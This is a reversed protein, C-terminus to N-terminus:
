LGEGRIAGPSESAAGPRAHEPDFNAGVTFLRELTVSRLVQAAELRHDGAIFELGASAYRAAKELARPTSTADSLEMGDAVAIKNSLAVLSYFCSQREEPDLQAIATFISESADSAKPLAPVWVPLHWKGVALPRAGIPIEGREEPRLYRYIGMAEDWPPFGLDQLRGTRWRLAWEENDAALEWAVGQMMRFYAWYENEFLSRLLVVTSALDDKSDLATFYFQGDLTQGGEPPEWDQDDSPPRQAVSLRSRLFMVVIEADLSRLARLLGESGIEAFADIWEELSALDPLTGNWADLDICAVYQEPSAYELIWAADSPGVAKVVFVLEAEPLEPIVEQPVPSLDLLEARRALPAECILAAQEESSFEGMAASASKKHKRALELVHRARPSPDTRRLM